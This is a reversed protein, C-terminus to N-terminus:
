AITENQQDEIANEVDQLVAVTQKQLETQKKAETLTPDAQKQQRMAALIRSFAEGSGATVTSRDRSDNQPKAKPQGAQAAIDALGLDLAEATILGDVFDQSLKLLDKRLPSDAPLSLESAFSKAAQALSRGVTETDLLDLGALRDLEGLQERLNEAPSKVSETISNAKQQDEALSKQAALEDRMRIAEAVDDINNVEIGISLAFDQLGTLDSLLDDVQATSVVTEVALSSTDTLVDVDVQRDRLGSFDSEADTLSQTDTEVSAAVSRDKLQGLSEQLSTLSGTDTEVGVSVLRDRLGALRSEFEDLRGPDIELAAALSVTDTGFKIGALERAQDVLLERVSLERQLQGVRNIDEIRAGAAAMGVRKRANENENVLRLEEELTGILTVAGGRLKDLEEEIHRYAAAADQASLTGAAFADRVDALKLELGVSKAWATDMANGLREAESLEVKFPVVIPQTARAIQTELKKAKEGLRDIENGLTGLSSDAVNIGVTIARAKLSDLDSQLGQVTGSDFDLGPELTVDRVRSTLEVIMAEIDPRADSTDVTVPVTPDFNEVGFTAVASGINSLGEAYFNLTRLGAEAIAAVAKFAPVLTVIMLTGTTEILEPLEELIGMMSVNVDDGMTILLNQWSADVQKSIQDFPTLAKSAVDDVTGGADRLASEYNRIADSTGLLSQLAGVSKDSFGLALLSAKAQEDNMGGLRREVDSIIDALNRMEGAQDHVAIGASEFASKNQIAKTQLDRMVISFKTGSDAGKIGQDAFAALVALTEEVDKGVSKAAAGAGSTLSESFQQVSANALTNAKVLTDSVRVQNALNQTSDKVTMGLSSQADTLLDVATATDFNGATAFKLANPMSALQKEADMGASALFFYSDAIEDATARIAGDQSLALAQSRMQAMQDTTLKQIAFSSQLKRSFSASADGASDFLRIVERAILLGALGKQLSGLVPHLGALSSRMSQSSSSIGGLDRRVNRAGGSFQSHSMRMNVVIDGITAM